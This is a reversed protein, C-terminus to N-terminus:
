WVISCPLRNPMEFLICMWFTTLRLDRAAELQIKGGFLAVTGTVDRIPGIGLTMPTLKYRYNEPHRPVAVGIIEFKVDPRHRQM